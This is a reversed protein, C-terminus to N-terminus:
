DARVNSSRAPEHLGECRIRCRGSREMWVLDRPTAESGPTDRSFARGSPKRRPPEPGRCSQLCRGAPGFNGELQLWHHAGYVLGDFSSSLWSCRFRSALMYGFASRCLPKLISRRPTPLLALFPLGVNLLAISNAPAALSYSYPEALNVFGNRVKPPKNFRRRM